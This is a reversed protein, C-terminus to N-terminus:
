VSQEDLKKVFDLLEEQKEWITREDVAEVVLKLADESVSKALTFWYDSFEVHLGDFTDLSEPNKTRYIAEAEALIAERNQVRMLVEEMQAYGAFEAVMDSFKKGEQAAHAYAELVRLFALIGSDTYFNEKFYFHGSLECGFLADHARMDNTMFSHGIRARVPTGGYKRITDVFSRGTFNNYVIAGAAGASKELAHKAILSGIAASSVAKGTEDFFAARDVDGDFAVGFDPNLKRIEARVPATNREVTPDSGRHPFSGDLGFFLPHVEVPMDSCIIPALSTAMGNGADVVVHITCDKPIDVLSHLYKKYEDGIAKEKVSGKRQPEPFANAMVLKQIKDLGDTDTLPAAGSKVLKLGNFEKPNHSATIMAGYSAYAGSAFYLAPTDVLGIDVVDAGQDTAGRVFAERLSPSSLRMDRGLLVEKLDYLSVFARAARYAVEENIEDPYIGRIDAPKFAKAVHEPLTDQKSHKKMNM